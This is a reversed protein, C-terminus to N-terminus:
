NCDCNKESMEVSANIITSTSDAAAFVLQFNGLLSDTHNVIYTLPKKQTESNKFDIDGNKKLSDIHKREIGLCEMLCHAKQTQKMETQQLRVLVRENPMWSTFLSMKDGFAWAVVICGLLVGFFFLKFRRLM